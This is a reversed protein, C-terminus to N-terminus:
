GKSSRPDNGYSDRERIKGQKNHLYFEAGEKRAINRGKDEAQKQTPHVSTAKKNGEKTVAWGDERPTIHVGPKKKSAM